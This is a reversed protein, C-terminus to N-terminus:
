IWGMWKAMICGDMYRNWWNIRGGMWEMFRDMWVDLGDLWEMLNNMWGGM